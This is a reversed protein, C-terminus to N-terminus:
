ESSRVATVVIDMDADDVVGDCNLDVPNQTWEYLDDVDTKGDRNVDGIPDLFVYLRDAFRQGLTLMGEEDYHIGDPLFAIDDTDFWCAFPDADAVTVQALRVDEIYPQGANRVRGLVFPMEPEGLFLRIESIFDILKDDYARAQYRRDGDSEGQMWLFGEITYEHGQSTLEGLSATITDLLQNWMPGGEPFENDPTTWDVYLTTGGVAYKIIAIQDHPYLEAVREGFALEPGFYFEPAVNACSATSSGTQLAMFGPNPDQDDWYFMHRDLPVQWIPDVNRVDDCGSMNSQGALIFVRVVSADLRVSDLRYIDENTSSVDSIIRLDTLNGLLEQFESSTPSRDEGVVKWPKSESLTVEYDNMAYQVWPPSLTYSLTMPGSTTLGSIEVSPNSPQYPFETSGLQFSLKGRYAASKDGLFAPPAAFGMDESTRDHQSILSNLHDVQAGANGSTTWGEDGLDFTSEALQGHSPCSLGLMVSTLYFSRLFAPMGM